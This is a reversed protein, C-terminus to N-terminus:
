KSNLIWCYIKDVKKAINVSVPEKNFDCIACEMMLVCEILQRCEVRMENQLKEAISDIEIREIEFNCLEHAIYNRFKKAKIFKDKIEKSPIIVDIIDFFISIIKDFCLKSTIAYIDCYINELSQETDIKRLKDLKDEFLAPYKCVNITFYARFAKEYQTALYLLRGIIAFNDNSFDTNEFIDTIM